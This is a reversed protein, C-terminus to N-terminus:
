RGHFRSVADAVRPGLEDKVDSLGMNIVTGFEGVDVSTETALLGQVENAAALVGRSHAEEISTSDGATLAELARAATGDGNDRDFLWPDLTDGSLDM